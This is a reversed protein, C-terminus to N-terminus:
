SGVVMVAELTRKVDTLVEVEVSFSNAAALALRQAHTAATIGRGLADIAHKVKEAPIMLIDRATYVDMANSPPTKQYGKMLTACHELVQVFAGGADENAGLRSQPIGAKSVAAKVPPSRSSRARAQKDKKQAPAGRRHTPSRIPSRSRRAAEQKEAHAPKPMPWEEYEFDADSALIEADDVPTLHHSSHVLHHVLASMAEERTEAWCKARKFSEPKCDTALPCEKCVWFSWTQEEAMCVRCPLCVGLCVFCGQLTLISRFQLTTHRESVAPRHAVASHRATPLGGHHSRHASRQSPLSSLPPNVATLVHRPKPHGSRACSSSLPPHVAALVHRSRHTSRQLRNVLATPQGSRACSSLPPGVAALSHGYRHTSRQLCSHVSLCIKVAVLHCGSTGDPTHRAGSM